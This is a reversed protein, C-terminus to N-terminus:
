AMRDTHLEVLRRAVLLVAIADATADHPEGPFARSPYFMCWISSLSLPVTHNGVCAPQMFSQVIPFLDIIKTDSGVSDHFRAEPGHYSIIAKLPMVAKVYAAVLEEYKPASDFFKALDNDSMRATSGAIKSGMLRAVTTHDALHKSGPYLVAVHDVGHLGYEAASDVAMNLLSQGDAGVVAASMPHFGAGPTDNTGQLGEMDFGGLRVAPISLLLKFDARAAIAQLGAPVHADFAAPTLVEQETGQRAARKEAKKSKRADTKNCAERGKKTSAQRNAIATPSKYQELHPVRCTTLRTETSPNKGRRALKRPVNGYGCCRSTAPASCRHAHGCLPSLCEAEHPCLVDTETASCGPLLPYPVIPVKQVM